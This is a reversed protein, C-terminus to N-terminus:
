RIILRGVLPGLAEAIANIETEPLPRAKSYSEDLHKSAAFRQLVYRPAGQVLRGIELLDNRDLLGEVLTTRFECDISSDRIVRISEAIAGPDLACGAVEPYRSLPAKVDMAVFDVADEGIARSVVGPLTGNTDLKVLFGLGRVEKMFPILGPQLCPEGGTISLADIKGKRAKLYSLVEGVELLPGFRKPDVLEPNHCYPCRLNCGQTFVVASIRGPYEILSTKQLYGIKM